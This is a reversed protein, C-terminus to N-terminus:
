DHRITGRYGEPLEQNLQPNLKNLKEAQSHANRAWDQLSVELAIFAASSDPVNRFKELDWIIQDLTKSLEM